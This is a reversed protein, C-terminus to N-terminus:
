IAHGDYAHDGHLASATPGHMSCGQAPRGQCPLCRDPVSVQFACSVFSQIVGPLVEDIINIDGSFRNMVRGVPTSYTRLWFLLRM